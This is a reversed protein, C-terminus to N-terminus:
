TNHLLKCVRRETGNLMQGVDYEQMVYFCAIELREQTLKITNFGDLVDNLIENGPMMANLMEHQVNQSQHKAWARILMEVVPM